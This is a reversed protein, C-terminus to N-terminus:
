HGLGGPHDANISALLKWCQQLECAIEPSPLKLHSVAESVGKSAAGTINQTHTHTHTHTYTHTRTHTHDDGPTKEFGKVLSQAVAACEKVLNAFKRMYAGVRGYVESVTLACEELDHIEAEAFSEM